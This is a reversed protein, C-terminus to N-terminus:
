DTPSNTSNTVPWSSLEVLLLATSVIDRRCIVGEGKGIFILSGDSAVTKAHHSNYHYTSTSITKSLRNPRGSSDSKGSGNGNSVNSASNVSRSNQSPSVFRVTVLSLWLAAIDLDEIMGLEDGQTSLFSQFVILFGIKM